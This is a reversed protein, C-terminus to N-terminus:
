QIRKFDVCKPEANKRNTKKSELYEWDEITMPQPKFISKLLLSFNLVSKRPANGRHEDRSATSQNM